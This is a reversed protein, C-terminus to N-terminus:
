QVLFVIFVLLVLKEVSTAVCTQNEDTSTTNISDNYMSPLLLSQYTCQNTCEYAQQLYSAMENNLEYNKNVLCTLHDIDVFTSNAFLLAEFLYTQKYNHYFTIQYMNDCKCEMKFSLQLEDNYQCKNEYYYGYHVTGVSTNDSVDKSKCMSLYHGDKLANYMQHLQECENENDCIDVKTQNIDFTCRSLDRTVSSVYIGDRIASSSGIFTLQFNMGPSYNMTYNTINVWCKDLVVDFIEVRDRDLPENIASFGAYSGDEQNPILKIYRDCTSDVDWYMSSVIMMFMLTNLNM